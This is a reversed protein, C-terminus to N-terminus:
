VVEFDYGISISKVLLGPGRLRLRFATAHLTLPIDLEIENQGVWVGQGWLGSGWKRSGDPVALTMTQWTGSYNLGYMLDITTPGGLLRIKLRRIWKYREQDGFTYWPLEIDHVVTRFAPVAVPNEDELVTGARQKWLSGLAATLMYEDSDPPQILASLGVVGYGHTWAKLDPDYTYRSEAIIPIVAGALNAHTRPLTIHYCGEEFWGVVQKKEDRSLSAWIKRIPAAFKTVLGNSNDYAWPGDEGCGWLKGAGEALSGPAILGVASDVTIKSFEGVKTPDSGLYAYISTEKLTMLMKGEFSWVRVVRQGDNENVLFWSNGVSSDNPDFFVCPMYAASLRVESGKALVLRSMHTGIVDPAFNEGEAGRTNLIECVKNAVDLYSVTNVGLAAGQTPPVMTKQGPDSPDYNWGIVRPKSTGDIVFVAGWASVMNIPNTVHLAAIAPIHALNWVPTWTAGTQRYIIGANARLIQLAEGSVHGHVGQPADAVAYRTYTKDPVPNGRGSYTELGLMRRAVAPGERRRMQILADDTTEDIGPLATITLWSIDDAM